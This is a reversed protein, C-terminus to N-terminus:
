DISPQKYKLFHPEKDQGGEQRNNRCRGHNKEVNTGCVVDCRYTDYQPPYPCVYPIKHHPKDVVKRGNCSHIIGFYKNFIKISRTILGRKAIAHIIEIM